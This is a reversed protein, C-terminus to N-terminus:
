LYALIQLDELAKGGALRDRPLAPGVRVVERFRHHDFAVHPGGVWEENREVLRTRARETRVKCAEHLSGAVDVGAQPTVM